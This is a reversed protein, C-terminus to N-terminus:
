RVFPSIAHGWQTLWHNRSELAAALAFPGLFRRDPVDAEQGLEGVCGGVADRFRLQLTGEQVACIDIAQSRRGHADAGTAHAEERLVNERAVPVGEREQTCVGGVPEGGDETHLLDLSEERGGGGEVVLSVAGSDRPQSEPEMCGAGELAGVEIARTELDGPAM